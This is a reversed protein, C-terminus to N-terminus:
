LLDFEESHFHHRPVGAALAIQRVLGNLPGPGCAYVQRQACDSCHDRVFDGALPGHKYFYHMTLSFGPIRSSFRRLEDGFLARAEDQVCYILHMDVAEGRVALERARGLFPTIGIGGAVWLESDRNHVPFFAGYPGMIRVESGHAIAGIARSADGLDKIAIRLGSEGPASSLTYPHEERYGAQLKSDYPTLYVFQGAQYRLAKGVPELSLEVVNNAPRAVGTVTYRHQAARRAFVLGYSLAAIAAGALVLWILTSWPEATTRALMFTHALALLAAVGSLKHLSKWRQYHPAGFFSFSPALFVMMLLLAGWGLGVAVGSPYLVAVATALSVQSAALALLLPHALLLLFSIAGMLHHIHWLTTLGGFLRDFGPIRFSVIATVLLLGLGGIGTLRGLANLVGGATDFTGAPLSGLAILAPLVGLLWLLAHSMWRYM